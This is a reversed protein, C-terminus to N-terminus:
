ELLNVFVNKKQRLHNELHDNFSVYLKAHVKFFYTYVSNKLKEFIKMFRTWVLILFFWCPQTLVREM